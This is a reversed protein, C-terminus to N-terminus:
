CGGAEQQQQQQQAYPGPLLSRRRSTPAASSAASSTSARSAGRRAAGRALAARASARGRVRAQRRADGALARAAALQRLRVPDGRPLARRLLAGVAPLDPRAPPLRRRARGAGGGVRAPPLGRLRRVVPAAVGAPRRVRGGADAREDAPRSGHHRRARPARRALPVRVGRRALADAQDRGPLRALGGPGPRPVRAAGRARAGASRARRAPPAPEPAGVDRELDAGPRRAPERPRARRLRHRQGPQGPALAPVRDGGQAHVRRLARRLPRRPGVARLLDRWAQEPDSVHADLLGHFTVDVLRSTNEAREISRATWYLSEAVRSLM